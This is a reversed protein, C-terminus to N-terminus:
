LHRGSLPQMLAQTPPLELLGAKCDSLELEQGGPQLAATEENTLINAKVTVALHSNALAMKQMARDTIAGQFRTM